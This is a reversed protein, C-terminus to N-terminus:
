NIELQKDDYYLIGDEYKKLEYDKRGEVLRSVIGNDLNYTYIGKGKKSYVFNNNSIWLYDNINDNIERNPYNSSESIFRMCYISGNDDLEPYCYYNINEGIKEKTQEDLNEQYQKAMELEENQKQVRKCEAEFVSDIQLRAVFNTNELYRQVKSM